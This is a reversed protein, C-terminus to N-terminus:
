ARLINQYGLLRESIHTNNNPSYVGSRATNGEIQGEYIKSPPIFSGDTYICQQPHYKLPHQHYYKAPITISPTIRTIPTNNNPSNKWTHSFKIRYHPITPKIPYTDIHTNMTQKLIHPLGHPTQLSPTPNIQGHICIISTLSPEVYQYYKPWEPTPTYQITHPPITAMIHVDTNKTLLIQQSTWDKHNIILITTTNPDEKTAMRAWHIAEVTTNHNTPYALGIGKWM